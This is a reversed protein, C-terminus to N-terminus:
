NVHLLSVKAMRGFLTAPSTRNRQSAMNPMNSAKLSSQLLFLLTSTTSLWYALDSVSEQSKILMTDFGFLMESQM